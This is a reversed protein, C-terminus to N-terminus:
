LDMLGYQTALEIFKHPDAAGLASNYVTKYIGALGIVDAAAPLPLPSRLYKIRCMAAAYQWNWALQDVKDQYTAMLHTISARLASQYPLYNIWADNCTEPEMQWPGLAPGGVQAIYSYQSEILGTGIVLRIAAPEAHGITTLAPIVVLDRIQILPIM